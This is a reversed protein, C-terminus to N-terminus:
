DRTRERRLLEDRIEYYSFPIDAIIIVDEPVQQFRKWWEKIEEDSYYEIHDFMAKIWGNNTM